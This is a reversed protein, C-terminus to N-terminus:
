FYKRIMMNLDFYGAGPILNGSSTYQWICYKGSYSPMKPLNDFNNFVTKDGNSSDGTYSALWIEYDNLRDKNLKYNFWSSSAYVGGLYGRARVYDCFAVAADTLSEVSANGQWKKDEIDIFLPLDFTKNGIVNITEEAEKRGEDGNTAYSYTYAGVKINRAKAETYNREFCDDIMFQNRSSSYWGVRIIAFTVGRSSLASWDINGNWKSVDVGYKEDDVVRFNRKVEMKVNGWRDVQRVTVVHKGLSLGATDYTTIFGAKPTADIETQFRIDPTIDARVYRECNYTLVANDVMVTIKAKPDSCTAWGKINLITSENRRVIFEDAPTDINVWGSFVSRNIQFRSTLIGIVDGLRSVMEIKITHTGISYNEINIKSVFGHKATVSKEFDYGAVDAIITNTRSVNSILLKNDIYLRLYAQSDSAIAWGKLNLYCDKSNNENPVTIVKNDIPDIMKMKGGYIPKTFKIIITKGVILDNYQSYACVSITHNGYSYKSLDIQENYNGNSDLSVNEKYIKNDIKLVVKQASCDTIVNGKVRFLSQLEAGQSLQANNVPSTITVTGNYKKHYPITNPNNLLVGKKVLKVELGELRYGFGETGSYDGNKAWGLDGFVESHVRYYVQYHEALEGELRIKIRELRLGKGETGSFENNKVEELDGENQVHVSYYVDGSYVSLVKIKVGELRLGKGSTGSRGGDKKYEQWGVNQIHTQYYIHPVEDILVTATDNQIEEVTEGKPVLYIQFAEMRLEKGAVGTMEGNKAWKLWGYNQVHVRYYIDYDEAMKGTLNIKMAELRLGLGVSGNEEGNKSIENWGITDVFTSYEIDSDSYEPYKEKNVFSLEMAELRLGSGTTGAQEGNSSFEEQWGEYQVHARYKITINKEEDLDSSANGGIDDITNAVVVNGNDDGDDIIESTINGVVENSTENTTENSTVNNIENNTENVITNNDDIIESTLNGNVENDILNNVTNDTTNAVVVNDDALSYNIFITVSIIAFVLVIITIIKKLNM